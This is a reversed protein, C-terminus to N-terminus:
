MKELECKNELINGYTFVFAIHKFIMDLAFMECREYM